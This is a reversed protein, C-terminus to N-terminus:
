WLSRGGHQENGVIPAIEIEINARIMHISPAESRIKVGIVERSSLSRNM